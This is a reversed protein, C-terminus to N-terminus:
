SGTIQCYEADVKLLINLNLTESKRYAISVKTNREQPSGSFLNDLKRSESM